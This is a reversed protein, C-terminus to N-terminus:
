DCVSRVDPGWGARRPFHVAYRRAHYGAALSHSEIAADQVCRFATTRRRRRIRRLLVKVIEEQAALAHVQDWPLLRTIQCCEPFQLWALDERRIPPFQPTVTPHHKIMFLTLPVKHLLHHRPLRVKLLRLTSLPNIPTQHHLRPRILLHHIQQNRNPNPLKPTTQQSLRPSTIPRPSPHLPLPPTKLPCCGHNGSTHGMEQEKENYARYFSISNCFTSNTLMSILNEANNFHIMLAFVLIMTAVDITFSLITQM